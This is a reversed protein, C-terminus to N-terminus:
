VYSVRGRPGKSPPPEGHDDDKKSKSTLAPSDPKAQRSEGKSETSGPKEPVSSKAEPQVQVKSKKAVDRATSVETKKEQEVTKKSRHSLKEQEAMKNELEQKKVQAEMNGPEIELIKQYIKLAENLLGQKTYIEAVTVTMFEDQNDGAIEDGQTNSISQLLENEKASAKSPQPEPTTSRQTRVQAERLARERAERQVRQEEKEDVDTAPTETRAVKRAVATEPNIGAFMAYVRTLANKVKENGPESKLIKQYIEIAEDLAGQQVYTDAINMMVRTEDAPTKTTKSQAAAPSPTEKGASTAGSSASSQKLSSAAPVKNGTLERAKARMEEAEKAKGEADLLDALSLCAEAAQEELGANYSADAMKLYLEQNREDLKVAAFACIAAREWEENAAFTDMAQIFNDRAQNVNNQYLAIRAMRELADANKSDKKVLREYLKYAEDWQKADTLIKALLTLGGQHNVKFKLLTEFERRAEDMQGNQFFVMGLYYHAEISKLQIAKQAFQQGREFNGQRILVEAVYLFEKKADSDSGEKAYIEGLAIRAPLCTPDLKVIRQFVVGAKKFMRNNYLANGIVLYQEAAETNKGNKALLDGLKQYNEFNKPDAAIAAELQEISRNLSPSSQKAREAESLPPKIDNISDPDLKAMKSKIVEIKSESDPEQFLVLIAEKYYRLAESLRGKHASIDGLINIVNVDSPDIDLIQRYKELANDYQGERLHLFAERALSKKDM